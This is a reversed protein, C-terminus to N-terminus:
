KCDVTSQSGTSYRRLTKNYGSGNYEQKFTFEQVTCHGDPWQALCYASIRRGTIIGTLKNRVISWDSSSIKVAKFKEKWGSNAAMNQAAKLLSAELGADKKKAKFQAFTKGVKYYDNSSKSLIVNQSSVYEKGQLSIKVTFKVNNDGVKMAMFLKHFSTRYEENTNIKLDLSSFDEQTKINPHGNLVFRKKNGELEAYFQVTKYGFDPEKSGYKYNIESLKAPLFIRAYVKDKAILKNLFKSEDANIAPIEQTSFVIKDIYKQHTADTIKTATKYSRKKKEEDAKGIVENTARNKAEKAKNKLAKGFGGFQANANTIFLSFVILLILNTRKM